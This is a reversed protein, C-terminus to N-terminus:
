VRLVEELFASNRIFSVKLLWHPFRSTIFSLGVYSVLRGALIAATIMPLAVGSVATVITVTRIPTPICAMLFLGYVGYNQIFVLLKNWEDSSAVGSLISNLLPATFTQLLGSIILGGLTSGLALWLGNSLWKKPQLLSSAIVLTTSPLVIIFYDLSIVGGAYPGYWRHASYDKAKKAVKTSFSM